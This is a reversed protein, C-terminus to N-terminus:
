DVDGGGREGRLPTSRRRREVKHKEVNGFLPVLAKSRPQYTEKEVKIQQGNCYHALVVVEEEEEKNNVVRKKVDANGFLPVFAALRPRYTQTSTTIAKSSASVAQHALFSSGINNTPSNTLTHSLSSPGNCAITPVTHAVSSAFFQQEEEPKEVLVWDEEGRSSTTLAGLKEEEGFIYSSVVSLMTSSGAVQGGVETGTETLLRGLTGM